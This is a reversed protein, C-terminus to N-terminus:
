STGEERRGGERRRRGTERRLFSGGSVELKLVALGKSEVIRLRGQWMFAQEGWEAAKWGALSPRTPIKYVAIL